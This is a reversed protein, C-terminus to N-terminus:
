TAWKEPFDGCVNCATPKSALPVTHCAACKSKLERLAMRMGYRKERGDIGRKIDQEQRADDEVVLERLQSSADTTGVLLRFERSLRENAQLSEVAYSLEGDWGEVLAWGSVFMQIAAIVSALLVTVKASESDLGFIGVAAAVLLPSALGAFSLYRLRRRYLAVRREFVRATGFADIARHLPQLPGTNKPADEGM